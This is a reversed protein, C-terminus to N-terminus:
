YDDRELYKWCAKYLPELAPDLSLVNTYAEETVRKMCHIVGAVVFDAYSATFIHASYSEQMETLSVPIAWSSPDEQRVFCIELLKETPSSGKGDVKRQV